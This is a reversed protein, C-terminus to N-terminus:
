YPTTSLGDIPPVFATSGTAIVFYRAQVHYTASIVEKASAFQATESIVTVGLSEFREVSDHPAITEITDRVHDKAKAFDVTVSGTVGMEAKAKAM